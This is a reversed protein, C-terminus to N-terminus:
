FNVVLDPMEGFIADGGKSFNFLHLLLVRLPKKVLAQPYTFFKGSRELNGVYGCALDTECISHPTDEAM